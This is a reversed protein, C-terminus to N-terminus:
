ATDGTGNPDLLAHLNDSDAARQRLRKAYSAQNKTCVLTYPRGRKDTTLDLDCQATRIQHSVHDRAQQGAKLRWTSDSPSELFRSLEQCHTCQCKLKAPRRWDAPPELAEAIRQRLLAIMADKLQEALPTNAALPAEGTQVARAAPILIQDPDYTEPHTLFRELAQQALPNVSATDLAGDLHQFAALTATVLEPTMKEPAGYYSRAPPAIPLGDLLVMAAPKVTEGTLEPKGALVKALLEACASPDRQANGTILSSLIAGAHEAPLEDLIALVPVNDQASYGGAAAVKAIFDVTTRTDGLRHLASLFRASKGNRSAFYASHDSAPWGACIAQALQRAEALIEADAGASADADGILESLRPLSVDLGGAALVASRQRRPWLVLAACQYQREFSAGANGTAEHFEAEADAIEELMSPPCLEHDTFPLAGMASSRGDPRRWSHLEQVREDVEGVELDDGWRSYGTYEAWGTEQVSLMALHLDCESAAAADRVVAALTADIAKLARFGLEAETYAYELPLVLKRPWNAQDQHGGQGEGRAQGQDPRESWLSLLRTLETRASDHDPAQPLPGGDRRVLNYILALRCGDTIPLVQHRCDAYFAAYAIAAPDDRRLDLRVERDQHQVILEGGSFESPLIMVLTAFMGPCKETDRHRVFFSGADYILLKYLEAEVQGTVGLGEAICPLLTALDDQWRQGELSLQAADIQWTRRVETDVLTESGRGYPAQEAVGILQQAQVPLLPLAITGIGEVRLRPPHMDLTGTAYFDGPRDIRELLAALQEQINLM